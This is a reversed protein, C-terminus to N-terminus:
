HPRTKEGHKRSYICTRPKLVDLGLAESCVSADPPGDHHNLLNRRSQKTNRM